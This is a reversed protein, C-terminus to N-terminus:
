GTGHEVSADFFSLLSVSESWMGKTRIQLSYHSGWLRKPMVCLFECLMTPGKHSQALTAQKLVLEHCHWACSVIAM